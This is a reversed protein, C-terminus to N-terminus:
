QEYNILLVSNNKGFYDRSHMPNRQDTRLQGNVEFAYKYMTHPRVKIRIKWEGDEYEMKEKKWGNFDGLVYVTSSKGGPYTLVRETWEKSSSFFLFHSGIGILFVAAAAWALKPSFLSFSKRREIREMVRSSFHAPVHVEQRYIKKIERDLM